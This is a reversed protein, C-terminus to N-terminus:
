VLSKLFSYVKYTAYAERVYPIFPILYSYTQPHTLVKLYIPRPDYDSKRYVVFM